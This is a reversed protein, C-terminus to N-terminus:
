ITESSFIIVIRLLLGGVLVLAASTTVNSLPVARARWSMVLPVIMGGIVTLALLLGWVNLWARAVPGLSVIVAIIVIVEIALVWEDMRHLNVLGPMTWGRRYALLILLAASTSAASVIFLLGLLPTDSWIPRNTVALLIGTYGALFYGAIGGIVALATGLPAPPRLQRFGAFRLRDIGRYLPRDEEALAALFSLFSFIGFLLVAWSGFSMPSWAKFMPAFTNRQILMHWFREPRGLDITLLLGCILVLPFAIYYGLRALRRDEPRGALDILSALFYCGGALGGLFFYAVIYWGWHPSITFWTSSPADIM